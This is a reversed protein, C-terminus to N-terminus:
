GVLSVRLRQMRTRRRDLITGVKENDLVVVPQQAPVYVNIPERSRIGLEERVVRRLVPVPSAIEDQRGEGILGLVPNNAKFFGGLALPFYDGPNGGVYGGNRKLAMHLHAGSGAGGDLEPSGSYGILQGQTVVQGSGVIVGSMHGYVTEYGNDHVIDLGRGSNGDLNNGTARVVGSAPAVVPTGRPAAWDYASEVHHTGTYFGQVFTGAIPKIFGAASPPGGSAGGGGGFINLKGGISLVHEGLWDTLTHWGDQIAKLVASLLDEGAKKGMETFKTVIEGLGTDFPAKLSAIMADKTTDFYSKIGDWIGTVKSTIAGWDFIDKFWSFPAGLAAEMDGATNSFFTKIGTWTDSAKTSISDWTNSLFDRMKTMLDSVSDKIEGFHTVVFFLGGAPPFLITLATGVIAKWHDSLWSQLDSIKGTVGNWLDSFFGVVGDKLDSAAKTVTSSLSDWKDVVWDRLDAAASKMWDWGAQLKPQIEDWHQWVEFIAVGIAAILLAIGPPSLLALNVGKIGLSMAAWAAQAGKIAAFAQTTATFAAWAVGVAVLTDEHDIVWGFVKKLDPWAAKAFDEVVPVLRDRILALVDGIPPLVDTRINNATTKIAPIISNQFWGWLDSLAPIAKERIFTGTDSAFEKVAPIVDNRITDGITYVTKSFGSLDSGQFAGANGSLALTFVDWAHGIDHIVPLVDKRLVTGIQLIKTEVPTLDVGQLQDLNGSLAASLISGSRGLADQLGQGIKKGLLGGVLAGAPGLVLGGAASGIGGGIIGGLNDRFYAKIGDGLRQGIDKGKSEFKAKQEEIASDDIVPKVPLRAEGVGLTVSPGEDKGAAKAKKAAAEQEQQAQKLPQIADSIDSKLNQWQKSQESLLDAQRQYVKIQDNLPKLEDEQKKKLDAIQKELPLAAIQNKTDLEQESLDNTQQQADLIAQRGALEATKQQDTLGALKQQAQLEQLKLNLGEIDPGTDLVAGQKKLEFQQKDIELQAQKAALDDGTTSTTKLSLQFAQKDLDLKKQADSVDKGAARDSRIKDARQDLALQQQKIKLANQAETTSAKARDADIDAQRQTLKAEDEQMSLADAQAKLPAQAIENQTDLIQQQLDHQDQQAKLLAIQSALEARKAPDGEAALQAEKLQIDQLKLNLDRREQELDRAQTLADVQAQLPDIQANYADTVDDVQRQLGHITDSLDDSTHDIQRIQDDVNEANATMADLDGAGDKFAQRAQELSMAGDLQQFVASVNAAAAQIPAMGDAMGAGYTEMLNRGGEDIKSLPGEPPPSNGIFFSAVLSSVGEIVGRLVSNAAGAIGSAYTSVLNWGSSFMNGTLNDFQTLLARVGASIGGSQFEKAIGRIADVARQSLVQVQAIWQQFRDTTVFNGIKNALDSFADFFPKLGQAIAGKSNDIVNSMAGQFTHSQKEMMDGFNAKSWEDFAKIFVDSAIEGNEVMDKVAATSKGTAKALLEWVPVGQAVMQNLDQTHLVVSANMQGLALTMQDIGEAGKGMAASVNGVDTLLPIVESAAFGMALLRQSGTLVDPLEFPSSNAFDKLQKLMAQAQEGSHLMSTFGIQAQQLTSNYGIAADKAFGFAAGVGRMVTQAAIFGTATGVATNIVAGLKSVQGGVGSFATEIKSANAAASSAIDGFAKQASKADGLITIKVTRSGAM